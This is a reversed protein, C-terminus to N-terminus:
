IIGDNILDQLANLIEFSQESFHDFYASMTRKEERSTPRLFAYRDCILSHNQLVVSRTLLRVRNAFLQHYQIYFRRGQVTNGIPFNRRQVRNNARNPAINNHLVLVM